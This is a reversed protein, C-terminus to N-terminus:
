KKKMMHYEWFNSMNKVNWSDTTTGPEKFVPAAEELVAMESSTENEPQQAVSDDEEDAEAAASPLPLDDDEVPQQQQEELDEGPCLKM